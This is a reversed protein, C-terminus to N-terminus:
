GAQKIESNTFTNKLMWYEADNIIRNLYLVIHVTDAATAENDQSTQPCRLHL